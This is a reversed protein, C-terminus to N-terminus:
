CNWSIFESQAELIRLFKTVFTYSVLFDTKFLILRWDRYGKLELHYKRIGDPKVNPCFLNKECPTNIHKTHVESFLSIECCLM